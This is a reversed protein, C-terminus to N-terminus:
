EALMGHRLDELTRSLLRSVHMQSLGVVDAIQSQTMDEFFRLHLIRRERDPLKRVLPAISEHDEVFTFGADTEGLREGVTTNFTGEDLSGPENALTAELGERVEESTLGLHRALEPVTPGRGLRQTLDENATRLRLHLEKLRRPVRVRWCSDRFFRRVEGMITPVAFKTFDSGLSPDFREVANVLGLRAVQVIDEALGGWSGFRSAIRAALDLHAAILGDRLDPRRPDDPDMAALRRFGEAIDDPCRTPSDNRRALTM